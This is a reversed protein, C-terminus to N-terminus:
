KITQTAFNWFIYYISNRIGFSPSVLVGKDGRGSSLLLGPPPCSCVPRISLLSGAPCFGFTGRMGARNFKIGTNGTRFKVSIALHVLEARFPRVPNMFRLLGIM